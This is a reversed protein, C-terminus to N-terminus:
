RPEVNRPLQADPEVKIVIEGPKIMGLDDRAVDEIAAPDERLRRVERTKERNDRRLDAIKRDLDEEQRRLMRYAVWGESGYLRYPIYALAGVIVSCAVLRKTWSVVAARMM